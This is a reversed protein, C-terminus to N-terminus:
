ERVVLKSIESRPVMYGKEGLLMHMFGQSGHQIFIITGETLTLERREGMMWSADLKEGEFIVKCGQALQHKGFCM